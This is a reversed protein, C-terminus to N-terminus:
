LSLNTGSPLNVPLFPMINKKISKKVSKSVNEVSAKKSTFYTDFKKSFAFDGESDKPFFILLNDQHEKQLLM